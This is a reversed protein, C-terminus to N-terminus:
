TGKLYYNTSPVPVVYTKVVEHKATLEKSILQGGLIYVFFADM